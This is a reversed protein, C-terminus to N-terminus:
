KHEEIEKKCKGCLMDNDYAKEFVGGCCVCFEYKDTKNLCDICYYSYVNTSNKHLVKICENLPHPKHCESCTIINYTQNYEEWEDTPYGYGYMWRAFHEDEIYEFYPADNCTDLMTCVKKITSYLYNVHLTEAISHEDFYGVSLNVGAIKWKPCIDSIDSYTGWDTCFGFTEVYKEFDKNGCSYFVCDNSGQRDLEIIYKMDFPAQPNDKILAQAGFGGKEEDTTFCIHPMYGKKLIKIISFVGARDDAGLGNPSWLVGQQQDYYIHDPFRTFVTDLHAVLMVPINGKCLLYKNTRTVDEKSYKTKLISELSNLLQEQSLQVINKFIKFDISNMVMM